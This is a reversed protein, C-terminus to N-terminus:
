IQNPNTQQQQQLQHHPSKFALILFLEANFVYMCCYSSADQQKQKSYVGLLYFIFCSMAVLFYM